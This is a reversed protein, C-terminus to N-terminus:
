KRSREKLLIRFDYLPPRASVLSILLKDDDATMYNRTKSALNNPSPSRSEELEEYTLHLNDELLASTTAANQLTEEPVQM